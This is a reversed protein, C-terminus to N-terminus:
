CLIILSKDTKNKLYNNSCIILHNVYLSVSNNGGVPMNICVACVTVSYILSNKKKKKKQNLNTPQILIEVVLLKSLIHDHCLPSALLLKFAKQIKRHSYLYYVYNCIVKSINFFFFVRHEVYGEEATSWLKINGNLSPRPDFSCCRTILKM